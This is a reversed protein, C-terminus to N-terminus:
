SLFDVLDVQMVLKSDYIREKVVPRILNAVDISIEFETQAQGFIIKFLNSFHNDNLM